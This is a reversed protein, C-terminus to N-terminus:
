EACNGESDGVGAKDVRAVIAGSESIVQRLLRSIGDRANPAVEVSDCSLWGAVFIAPLKGGARPITVLTRLRQGRANRVSGLEVAVNEYREAAANTRRPLDADAGFAVQAIGLALIAALKPMRTMTAGAHPHRAGDRLTTLGVGLSA